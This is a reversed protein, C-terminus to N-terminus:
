WRRAPRRHGKGGSEVISEVDAGTRITGGNDLILREFARLLNEAGGKVVPCGALEIAFGIVKLM